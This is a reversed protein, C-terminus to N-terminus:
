RVSGANAAQAANLAVLRRIIEEKSTPSISFRVLGRENAYFGHNLALDSWDYWDAVIRDMAVHLERLRQIGADDSQPDHFRNYL